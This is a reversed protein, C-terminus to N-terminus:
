ILSTSCVRIRGFLLRVFAVTHTRAALPTSTYKKVEKQKAGAGKDAGADAVAEEENEEYDVLEEEDQEIVVKAEESM